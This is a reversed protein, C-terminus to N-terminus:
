SQHHDGFGERLSSDFGTASCEADDALALACAVVSAALMSALILHKM